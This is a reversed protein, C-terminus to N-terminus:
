PLLVPKESCTRNAGPAVHDGAIPQGCHRCVIAENSVPEKCADYEALVAMEHVGTCRPQAAPSIMDSSM